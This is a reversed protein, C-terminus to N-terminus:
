DDGVEVEPVLMWKTPADEGESRFNNGEVDEWENEVDNWKLLEISHIFNKYKEWFLLVVSGDRPATEIPQWGLQQKAWDVATCWDNLAPLLMEDDELDLCPYTSNLYDKAAALSKEEFGM